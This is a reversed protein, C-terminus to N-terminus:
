EGTTTEADNKLGNELKQQEEAEQILRQRELREAERKKREAEADRRRASGEESACTVCTPRRSTM